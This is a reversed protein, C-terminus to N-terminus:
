APAPEGEGEVPPEEEIEPPPLTADDILDALYDEIATLRAEVDAGVGAATYRGRGRGVPKDAMREGKM